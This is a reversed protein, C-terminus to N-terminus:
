GGVSVLTKESDAAPLGTSDSSTDTPHVETRATLSFPWYAEIARSVWYGYGLILGYILHGVLSVTLTTLSLPFLEQGPAAFLDTLILGSWVPFVGYAVGLALVQWRSWSGIGLTAAVAFFAIAIGGGDGIYRWLYGVLFNSDSGTAWGGVSGFFDGWLHLGYVTPLRFADYGACAVIGWLFGALVVKDSRDPRVLVLAALAVLLPALVYIETTHLSVWGLVHMSIALVPISAVALYLHLHVFWMPAPLRAVVKRRGLSFEIQRQQQSRRTAHEGARHDHAADPQVPQINTTTM